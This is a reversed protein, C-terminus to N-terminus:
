SSRSFWGLWLLLATFLVVIWGVVGWGMPMMAGWFADQYAAHRQQCSAPDFRYCYVKRVAHDAILSARFLLIASVGALLLATSVLNGLLSEPGIPGDSMGGSNGRSSSGASAANRDLTGRHMDYWSNYVPDTNMSNRHGREADRVADSRRHDSM